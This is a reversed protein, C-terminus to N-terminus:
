HRGGSRVVALMFREWIGCIGRTGQRGFRGSSSCIGSKEMSPLALVAVVWPTVHASRSKRRTYM